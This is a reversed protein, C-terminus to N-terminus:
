KVVSDYMLRTWAAVGSWTFDRRMWRRGCRGMDQLVEPRLRTADSLAAALGEASIAAWWGCGELPLREWPAGHTTIVPLGHALAEAVVMGFNETHTPLVLLSAAEFAERKARGELEGEFSWEAALGARAVLAEVEARHGGEDPGVVRMRWGAPRVKSWAEVWMPLGKVPHMRGIFLATKVAGYRKVGDGDYLPLDVGNPVMHLPARLGLKKIQELEHAATAHLAVASQLDMKQYAFWAVRKKLRKYNLAWPELMGRPSVVRPVGCKGAWTALRHHHLLWIGNDHIVDVRGLEAMAAELSGHLCQVGSDKRVFPTDVASGDPAWLGVEVGSAVLAEALRSVSRAPGGYSSKLSTVSLFIKM